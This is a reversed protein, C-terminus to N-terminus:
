NIYILQMTITKKVTEYDIKKQLMSFVNRHIVIYM